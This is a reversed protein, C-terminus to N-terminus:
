SRSMKMGRWRFTTLLLHAESPQFPALIQAIYDQVTAIDTESIALESIQSLSYEEYGGGLFSGAL